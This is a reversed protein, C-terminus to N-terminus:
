PDDPGPPASREQMAGGVAAMLGGVLAVVPGIQVDAGALYGASAGALVIGIVVHATSARPPSWRFALLWCVAALAPIAYWAVGVWAPPVGHVEDGFSTILKALRYGTLESGLVELWTLFGSVAVLVAGTVVALLSFLTRSRSPSDSLSELEARPAM